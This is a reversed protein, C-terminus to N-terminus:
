NEKGKNKKFAEYKKVERDKMFRASIVRVKEGRITFCIYINKGNRSKVIRIERTENQSHKIDPFYDFEQLFCEEIEELSFRLQIKHANGEDWEFEM